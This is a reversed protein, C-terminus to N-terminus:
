CFSIKRSKDVEIFTNKSLNNSSKLTIDYSNTIIINNFLTDNKAIISVNHSKEIELGSILGNTDIQLNSCKKLILKNIKSDFNIKMEKCNEYIISCNYDFLTGFNQDVDILNTLKLNNKNLKMELEM